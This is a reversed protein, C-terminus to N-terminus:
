KGEDCEVVFEFVYYEYGNDEEIEVLEYDEVMLVSRRKGMEEYEEVCCGLLDEYFVVLCLIQLKLGENGYVCCDNKRVEVNECMFIEYDGKFLQFFLLESVFIKIIFVINSLDGIMIEM